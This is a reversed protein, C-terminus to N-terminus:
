PLYYKSPDELIGVMMVNRRELEILFDRFDVVNRSLRDVAQVLLLGGYKLMPLVETGLKRDKYCVSGSIKEEVILSAKLGHERLWESTLLRQTDYDQKKTSVRHYVVIPLTSALKFDGGALAKVRRVRGTHNIIEAASDIATRIGYMIEDPNLLAIAAMRLVMLRSKVKRLEMLEESGLTDIDCLKAGKDSSLGLKGCLQARLGDVEKILSITDDLEQREQKNM